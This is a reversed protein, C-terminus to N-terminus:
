EADCELQLNYTIPIAPELSGTILCGQKMIKEVREFIFEYEQDMFVTVDLRIGTVRGRGKDDTGTELTAAAEIKDYKASRADLAKDLAACYCYLASAALLKKATGAREDPSLTEGDIHLVGLAASQMDLDIKSGRRTLSVNLAHSM